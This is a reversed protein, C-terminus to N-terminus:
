EPLGARRLGDAWAAFDEPRRIPFQRKLNSIRLDPDLQRLKDMAALAVSEEGLLAASAAAVCAAIILHTQARMAKQAWSLAEGHHGALYHASAVASQMNFIHPDRPSLRMAREFRELAAEPEGLWIKTWGSFLWSWALNPDLDLAQDILAAGEEVEGAVYALGIGATCLAVANDM